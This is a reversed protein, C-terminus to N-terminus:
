SFRNIAFDLSSLDAKNLPCAEIGYLLIPVCKTHIIKLIVEESASRSIKGFVANSARYFSRKAM